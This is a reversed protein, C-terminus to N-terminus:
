STLALQHLTDLWELILVVWLRLRDLLRKATYNDM